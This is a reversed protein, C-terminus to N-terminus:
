VCVQMGCCKRIIIIFIVSLFLFCYLFLSSFFPSIFSMSSNNRFTQFVVVEAALDLIKAKVIVAKLPLAVDDAILGLKKEKEKKKMVEEVKSSMEAPQVRSDMKPVAPIAQNPPIRSKSPPGYEILYKLRIQSSNYVVFEDESFQSGRGSTSKVGHM